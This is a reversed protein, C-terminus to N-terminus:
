KPRKLILIIKGTRVNNYKDGLSTEVGPLTESQPVASVLEWGDSGLQYLDAGYKDASGGSDLHFDGPDDEAFHIHKSGEAENTLFENFAVEKMHHNFNEVEVVKYDWRRAEGKQSLLNVAALQQNQLYLVCGGIGLMGVVAIAIMPSGKPPSATPPPRVDSAGTKVETSQVKVKRTCSPCDVEMGRMAAPAEISQGCYPCEFHISNDVPM